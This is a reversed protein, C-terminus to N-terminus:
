HSVKRLIGDRIESLLLARSEVELYPEVSDFESRFKSIAHLPGRGDSWTRNQYTGPPLEDILTDCVMILSGVPLLPVYSQLEMLVHESSHDSDLILLTKKSEITSAEVSTIVRTSISDGEILRINNSFISNTIADHTHDFFKNDVGIVNPRLSAILQMSANFVLGGGRAVGIEVILDPKEKWIIEQQLFLDEPLRIIPVGMWSNKHGFGCKNAEHLLSLSANRYSDNQAIKNLNDQRLCEFEEANPVSEHWSNNSIM